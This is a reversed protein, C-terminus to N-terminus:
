DDFWVVLRVNDDGHQAALAEMAKWVAQWEGTATVADRRHITVSRYLTDGVLWESGEPWERREGMELGVAEAFESSWSAKGTMRLGDPTRRFQHLRGDPKEAPEDWDVAKVEGWTIWTTSHFGDGGYWEDLQAFRASVAASLDAPLGRGAAVPRFNAYNRVGFLCGFADYDRVDILSALDQAGYWAAERGDQSARYELFGSVDTGM